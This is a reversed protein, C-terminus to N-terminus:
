NISQFCFITEMEPRTLGGHAAYFHQEFRNKEYWWIAQNEYPLIVLNGVRELFRKSLPKPGFIGQEILEGTTYIEAIGHYKKQLEYRVEALQNEEIHLFFDRCSGAPALLAGKRNRKFSKLIEPMEKNLYHTTKPNVPVMGHDSVLIYCVRKTTSAIKKWFHEEMTTWCSDVADAFQPSIIGSRHGASDIDGIYMYYYNQGKQTHVLDTLRGLGEALSRYPLNRAGDFMVRSYPSDAIGEYQMVCSAVGFGSLQRYITQTPYLEEPAVGSQELTNLESDGAYSYLLSAIMQDVKPEYYFWEYVGSQGPSQGTNICTVHAATTSPFQSTIKSCIGESAIRQLFPYEPAYADFFNWGFGDIFFLVVADYASGYAGVTDDPLAGQYKGKFLAKITAPIRSFCYSEYLPRCFHGSFTAGEVAVAAKKNIM